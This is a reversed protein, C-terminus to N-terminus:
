QLLLRIRQLQNDLDQKEELVRKPNPIVDRLDPPASAIAQQLEPLAYPNNLAAIYGRSINQLPVRWDPRDLAKM